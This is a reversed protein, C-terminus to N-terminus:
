LKHEVDDLAIVDPTKLQSRPKWDIELTEVDGEKGADTFLVGKKSSL